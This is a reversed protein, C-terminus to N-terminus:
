SNRAGRDAFRIPTDGSVGRVFCAGGKAKISRCTRIAEAQKIFGGVSLRHFTGRGELTVTAHVPSYDGLGFRRSVKSWAAEATKESRYSGVQVM